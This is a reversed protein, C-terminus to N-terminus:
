KQGFFEIMLRNVLEPQDNQCQHGCNDLFTFPIDPLLKELEYGLEVPAFKDNKGWIFQAPIGLGPLSDTINFRNRLKPTEEMAKRYREFSDRSERIGPRLAAAQRIAILEDSPPENLISELFARQGEATYDYGRRAAMGSSYRSIDIGMASSITASAIFIAKAVRDPNELSYKAAVYAGQSNGSVFIEDLCLADIFDSIHNVLSQHGLVPWAHERADTWGMSLQDPAIARFGAAALAPLTHRFGTEGSSGPGGGHLLIVVPGETGAWSYHTRVGSALVWGDFYGTGLAM